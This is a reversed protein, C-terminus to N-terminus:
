RVSSPLVTLQAGRAPIAAAVPLELIWYGLATVVRGVELLEDGMVVGTATLHLVRLPGEVTLGHVSRTHILLGNLGPTNIGSLRAAFTTAVGIRDARWDEYRLDIVVRGGMAFAFRRLSRARRLFAFWPRLGFAPRPYLRVREGDALERRTEM